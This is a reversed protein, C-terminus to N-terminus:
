VRQYRHCRRYRTRGDRGDVGTLGQIGTRGTGGTTGTVGQTGTAGTSGTSVPAGTGGTLARLARDLRDSRDRGRLPAPSRGVGGESRLHPAGHHRRLLRRRSGHAPARHARRRQARDNGAVGTVGTAGTNGAIGPIGQVGTAGTVGQIGQAGTVGTSVPSVKFVRHARRAPRRRHSRSYGARRHHGDTGTVGQIGQAGTAGTTGIGTAGAVGTAGTAGASGTAGPAGVLSVPPPWAGGAKPGYLNNTATDIYFDGDVGLGNARRASETSCRRGTPAPPAPSARRAQRAPRARLAPVEPSTGACRDLRDSRHIRHALPAPLAPAARQDRQGQRAPRVLTGAGGTAGTSGTAVQPASPVPSARAPSVRQAWRGQPAPPGQTAGFAGTACQGLLGTGPQFCVLSPQVAATTLFPITVQGDTGNVLLGLLAGTSDRVAFNGGPPTRIEVDAARLQQGSAALAFALAAALPRKAFRNMLANEQRSPTACDHGSGAIVHPPALRSGRRARAASCPRRADADVAGSHDAVEGTPPQTPTGFWGKANGGGGENQQGPALPQGTAWVDTVGVHVIQQTGTGTLNISAVQGPASSRFQIPQPTTGTIELVGTITQVSGVAFVYNKGISSVFRANAFSSSGSITASAIACLTM